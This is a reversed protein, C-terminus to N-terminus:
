RRAAETIAKVVQLNRDTLADEAGLVTPIMSGRAARDRQKEKGALAIARGHTTRKSPGAVSVIVILEAVDLWSAISVHRGRAAVIILTLTQRDPFGWM